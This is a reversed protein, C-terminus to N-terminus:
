LQAGDGLHDPCLQGIAFAELLARL